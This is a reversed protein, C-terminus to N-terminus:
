RGHSTFISLLATLMAAFKFLRCNSSPAKKQSNKNIGMSEHTPTSSHTNLRLYIESDTRKVEVICNMETLRDKYLSSLSTLIHHLRQSVDAKKSKAKSRYTEWYSQGDAAQCSAMLHKLHTIVATSPHWQNVGLDHLAEFCFYAVSIKRIPNIYM